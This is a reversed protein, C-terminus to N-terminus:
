LSGAELESECMRLRVACICRRSCRTCDTRELSGPGVPVGGLADGRDTLAAEARGADTVIRDRLLAGPEVADETNLSSEVGVCALVVVVDDVGAALLVGEALDPCTGLSLVDPTLRNDNPGNGFRAGSASLLRGLERALM